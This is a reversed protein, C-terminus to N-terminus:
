DYNKGIVILNDVVESVELVPIDFYTSIENQTFQLKRELFRMVRTPNKGYRALQIAAEVADSMRLLAKEPSGSPKLIQNASKFTSPQDGESGEVNDHFLVDLLIDGKNLPLGLKDILQLAIIQVRYVHDSVTQSKFMDIVTWRPVISLKFANVLIKKDM